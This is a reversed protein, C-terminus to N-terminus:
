VACGLEQSSQFLTCRILLYCRFDKKQFTAAKDAFLTRIQKRIKPRVETRQHIELVTRFSVQPIIVEVKQHNQRRWRAGDLRVTLM